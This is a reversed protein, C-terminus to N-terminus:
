RNAVWLQPPSDAKPHFKVDVPSLLGPVKTADAVLVAKGSTLLPSNPFACFYPKQSKTSNSVCQFGSTCRYPLLDMCTMAKDKCPNPICPHCLYGAMLIADGNVSACDTRDACKFVELRSMGKMEVDEGAQFGACHKGYSYKIVM